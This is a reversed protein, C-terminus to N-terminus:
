MKRIRAEMLREYYQKKESDKSRLIAQIAESHLRKESQRVKLKMKEEQQHHMKEEQQHHPFREVFRALVEPFYSEPTPIPEEMFKVRDYEEELFYTIKRNFERLMSDDVEIQSGEGVYDWFPHNGIGRYNDGGNIWLLIGLKNRGNLFDDGLDCLDDLFGSQIILEEFGDRAQREDRGIPLSNRLAEDFVGLDGTRRQIYTRQVQNHAYKHNYDKVLM